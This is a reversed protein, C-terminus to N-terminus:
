STRIKSGADSVTESCSYRASNSVSRSAPRFQSKRANQIREFDLDKAPKERRIERAGLLQPGLYQVGRHHAQARAIARGDVQRDVALRYGCGLHDRWGRDGCQHIAVFHCPDDHEDVRRPKEGAQLDVGRPRASQAGGRQRGGVAM